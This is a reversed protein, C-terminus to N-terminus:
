EESPMIFLLVDQEDDYRTVGVLTYKGVALSVSTALNVVHYPPVAGSAAVVDAPQPEGTGLLTGLSARLDILVTSQETDRVAQVELTVGSNVQRAVPVYASSGTAIVADAGVVLSNQQGASAYIRQGEFGSLSARIVTVDDAHAQAVAQFDDPSLPAGGYLQYLDAAKSRAPVKVFRADIRLKQSRSAKLLGLLRDIEALNEASQRVVLQGGYFHVVCLGGNVYWSAPDVVSQIMTILDEASREQKDRDPKDSPFCKPAPAGAGAAAFVSSPASTPPPAPSYIDNSRLDSFVARYDPVELLLPRIDFVRTEPAPEDKGASQFGWATSALLLTALPTLRRAAFLPAPRIM